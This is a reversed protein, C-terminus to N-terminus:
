VNLVCGNNLSFSGGICGREYCTICFSVFTNTMGVFRELDEDSASSSAEIDVEESMEAAM